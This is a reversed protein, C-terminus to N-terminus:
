LLITPSTPLIVRVGPQAVGNIWEIGTKVANTPFARTTHMSDIGTGGDIKTAGNAFLNDADFYDNGDGLNAFFNDLAAVNSMQVNDNGAGADLNFDRHFTVNYLLVFDDGSHQCRCLLQNWRALKLDSM